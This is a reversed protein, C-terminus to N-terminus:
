VALPCAESLTHAPTLKIRHTENLTAAQLIVILVKLSRAHPAFVHPHHRALLGLLHIFPLAADESAGLLQAQCAALVDARVPAHSEFLIMMLRVGMQAAQVAAQTAV